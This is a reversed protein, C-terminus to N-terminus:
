QWLSTLAALVHISPYKKHHLSRVAGPAWLLSISSPHIVANGSRLRFRLRSLVADRLVPSTTAQYPGHVRKMSSIMCKFLWIIRLIALIFCTYDFPLCSRSRKCSRGLWQEFRGHSCSAGQSSSPLRSPPFYLQLQVLLVVTKGWLSKLLCM